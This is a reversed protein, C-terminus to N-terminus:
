YNVWASTNSSDFLEVRADQIIYYSGEAPPVFIGAVLKDFLEVIEM